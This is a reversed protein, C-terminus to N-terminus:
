VLHGVLEILHVAAPSAFILGDPTRHVLGVHRLVDVSESVDPEEIERALEDVSWLPREGQWPALAYLIDRQIARLVPPPNSTPQTEAM